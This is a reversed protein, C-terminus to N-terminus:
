MVSDGAWWVTSLKSRASSCFSGAIGELMTYAYAAIRSPMGYALAAGLRVPSMGARTASAALVLVGNAPLSRFVPWVSILVM